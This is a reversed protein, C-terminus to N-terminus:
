TSSRPRSSSLVLRERRTKSEVLERLADQYRDRVSAPEVAGSRREIITEAIAVMDADVERKAAARFEAPRVEDISRLTSMVLGAGRPEVVVPREPELDHRTWLRGQQQPGHRGSSGSHRRRCSATPTSTIPTDLYIPDVEDRGV